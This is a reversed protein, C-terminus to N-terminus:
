AAASSIAAPRSNQYQKEALLLGFFDWLQQYAKRYAYTKGIEFDFNEANVASSQAYVEFGNDLKITCHVTKTGIKIYDTNAIRADITDETVRPAPSKALKEQLQDETLNQVKDNM